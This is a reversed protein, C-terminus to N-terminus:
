TSIPKEIKEVVQIFTSFLANSLKEKLKTYYPKQLCIIARKQKKALEIAIRKIAIMASIDIYIAKNLNFVFTNIQPSLTDLLDVVKEANGFFINGSFTYTMVDNETNVSVTYDGKKIDKLRNIHLIFALLVGTIVGVVMDVFITLTFCSLLVLYDQHTGYRFIRIFQPIHSMRYATLFLLAALASMPIYSIFKAFFLVYLMIFIAHFSAALPSKAGSNINASTRAIAGTAPIGSALSTFINGVGVAVLESNPNHRTNAIADAVTASLLSELAALSAVVLAPVALVKLEFLTPLSFLDSNSFGPITLIPLYPPIGHGINGDLMTYTFRNGITDLSIGFKTLIIGLITGVLIGLVPSPILKIFRSSTSMVFLSIFGVFFEVHSLFHINSFLLFVKDIFNEPVYQFHIGLFDNLSLVAIVVAIGSTFGTSVPYPVYNILKGLRCIGALILLIGALFTTILLGRLGFTSVIPAIVVVFAATPGTVQFTSGGILPVIIGAVIATYLGYQPPLGVAISLAMALPLAILSVILGAILDHKLTELNYHKITKLLIM